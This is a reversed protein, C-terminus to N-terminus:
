NTEKKKLTPLANPAEITWEWGYDDALAANMKSVADTWDGEVKTAEATGIETIGVGKDTSVTGSWYCNVVGGISQENYITYKGLVGGIADGAGTVDGTAHYCSTTTSIESDGVVGGVNTGNKATVNGTSYCATITSQTGMHGVVGGANAEGSAITAKVEGTAYCATINSGTTGMGVIGGVYSIGEVIASSHCETVHTKDAVGVIGGAQSIKNTGIVMGEVSCDTVNGNANGVVGGVSQSGKINGSVSCGSITGNSWGAVAGVSMYGSVNVNTLKLNKVAGGLGIYGILGVRRTGSQDITLGSIAHANGDFTGTYPNSSNGIPTWVETLTIDKALTINIGTEGSNVLEAMARLGEESTVNYTNNDADYNYGLIDVNEDNGWDGVVNATFTVNTLGLNRVDGVLTTHKNPGLPVNSVQQSNTGNTLTINQTEDKVLAYFSFVEAGDKTGTISMVQREFSTNNAKADQYVDEAAVNYATYTTPVTVTIKSNAEVNTTTKLTVKAVVHQLDATIEAPESEQYKWIESRKAWAIRDINYDAHRLDTLDDYPEEANDAWYLFVYTENPNLFVNALSFTGEATPDGMDLPSALDGPALTLTTGNDATTFAQVYCRTPKEDNDADITRTQVGDGVAASLTVPVLGDPGTDTMVEDQSCSAAFLAVAFAVFIYRLQKM